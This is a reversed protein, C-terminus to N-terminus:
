EFHRFGGQLRVRRGRSTFRAASGEVIRGVATVREGARRCAREFAAARARPVALVLEYDEGGSLAVGLPVGFRGILPSKPIRDVDVEAGVGSRRLVHGLDQPFGDSVDVAAHAFRRAILGLALRPVPRRQRALVAASRDGKKMRLLGVRAGGLEGSVYIIDGPRARGRTLARGAPVEGIAGITISLERAGTFNGGVLAIGARRALSAMGRAIGDFRALTTSRPAAIAAVFWRPTAGAAALDSLNVALAKHGVDEASLAPFYFHVGEVVADTKLCLETRPGPRVVACDDGPGAVVGVGRTRFRRVFRDILAFENM